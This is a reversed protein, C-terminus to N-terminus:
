QRQVRLLYFSNLCGDFIVLFVNILLQWFHLIQLARVYHVTNYLNTSVNLFQSYLICICLLM